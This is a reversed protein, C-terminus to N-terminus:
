TACGWMGGVVGEGEGEGEGEGTICLNCTQWDKESHYRM